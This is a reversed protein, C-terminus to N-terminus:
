SIRKAQVPQQNGWDQAEAQVGSATWRGTPDRYIMMVATDTGVQFSKKRLVTGDPATAEYTTAKRGATASTGGKRGFESM